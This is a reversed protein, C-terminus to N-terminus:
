AAAMLGQAILVDLIAAIATRAEADTTTGGTVDAIFTSPTFVGAKTDAVAKLGACTVARTTDTGTTAEVTTALEVVGSATATAVKAALGAPTVARTADTGTITEADTALEVAGKASATADTTTGVTAPGWTGTSATYIIGQQDTIGTQDVDSLGAFTMGAEAIGALEAKKAFITM